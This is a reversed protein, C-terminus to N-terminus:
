PWGLRGQRRDPATRPVGLAHPNLVVQEGEKLGEKVEVYTDNSVGLILERPAFGEGRKVLCLQKGRLALVAQVALSLVNKKEDILIKITASMGPKLAPMEQDDALVITTPFGKVDASLWDGADAKPAVSQVHGRLIKGPFADIGITAQQAAAPKVR